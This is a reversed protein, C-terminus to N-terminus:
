PQRQLSSWSVRWAQAIDRGSGVRATLRKKISRGNIRIEKWPRGNQTHTFGLEGVLWSRIRTLLNVAPRHRTTIQLNLLSRVHNKLHTQVRHLKRTIKNLQVDISSDVRQDDALVRPEIPSPFLGVGFLHRRIEVSAPSQEPELDSETVAKSNTLTGEQAAPGDTAKESKPMFHPVSFRSLQGSLLFLLAFLFLFVFAPFFISRKVSVSGVGFDRTVREATTNIKAIRRERIFGGRWPKIWGIIAKTLYANPLDRTKRTSHQAGYFQEFTSDIDETASDNQLKQRSETEAPREDECAAQLTELAETTITLSNKESWVLAQCIVENEDTGIIHELLRASDKDYIFTVFTGTEVGRSGHSEILHQGRDISRQFSPLNRVEAPPMFRSSFNLFDEVDM